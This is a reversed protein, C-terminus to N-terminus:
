RSEALRREICQLLSDHIRSLARYISYISSGLKDSIEKTPIQDYYRMRILKTDRQPLKQLCQSLARERDDIEADSSAADGALAEVVENSLILRRKTRRRFACVELYAVGRAWPLFEQNRDFSSFKSWLVCSMEQFIEETDETNIVLSSVYSYLSKAYRSFLRVFEGDSKTHKTPDMDSL